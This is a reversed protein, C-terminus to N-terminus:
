IIEYNEFYNIKIKDVKLNDLIFDNNINGDRNLITTDFFEPKVLISNNTYICKNKNSLSDNIITEIFDEGFNAKADDGIGPDGVYQILTEDIDFVVLLPLPTPLAQAM